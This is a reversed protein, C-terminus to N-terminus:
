SFFNVSYALYFLFCQKKKDQGAKNSDEELQSAMETKARKGKRSNRPIMTTQRLGCIRGQASRHVKQVM